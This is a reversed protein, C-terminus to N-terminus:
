VHADQVLYGDQVFDETAYSWYMRLSQQMCAFLMWAKMSNGVEQELQDVQGVLVALQQASLRGQDSDPGVRCKCVICMLSFLAAHKAIFAVAGQCTSCATALLNFPWCDRWDLVAAAFSVVRCGELRGM